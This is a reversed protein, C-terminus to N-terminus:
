KNKDAYAFVKQLLASGRENSNNRIKLEEKAIEHFLGDLAKQSAYENLDSNIKTVFPIKNYQTTADKWHRTAGVKHLSAQIIPKFKEKLQNTTAQKFYNTAADKEKGLLISSADSLAMNKIASVFLPLAEKTADEAARNLSVIVKDCADNFGLGRLTKEMKQAEPPFLVKVAMNNLFGDTASLRQTGSSIGKELAEKIGSGIEDSSPRGEASTVQKVISPIKFQSKANLTVLTCFIFTISFSRM